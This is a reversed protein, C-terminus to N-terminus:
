ESLSQLKAVIEEHIVDESLGLCIVRVDCLMSARVAKRFTLRYFRPGYIANDTMDTIQLQTERKEAKYKSHPDYVRPTATMYLRKKCNIDKQHHVKQFLPAERLKDQAGATRHAEDVLALDFAPAGHEKQAASVQELSQYTCFVVAVGDAPTQKLASAITQPDTTVDFSVEKPSIDESNKVTQDSCVAACKLPRTTHRLWEKRAQAVLAISPALFLIRGGLPVIREAIKLSTFTKGTGCAMILQGRENNDSNTFGEVVTDIAEQQLPWPKRPSDEGSQIRCDAFEFFDLHKVADTREIMRRANANLASTTVLWRQDFDDDVSGSLFNTIDKKSVKNNEDYCKCQIAVVKGDNLVAVRDVGVDRGSLQHQAIDAWESMRYIEKVDLEPANLAVVSFLDEFQLGLEAVSDADRRIIELAERATQAQRWSNKVDAQMIKTKAGGNFEKPTAQM